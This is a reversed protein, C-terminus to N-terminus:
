DEIQLDSEAKNKASRISINNRRGEFTAGALNTTGKYYTLTTAKLGTKLCKTIDRPITSDIVCVGDNNIRIVTEWEDSLLRSSMYQVKAGNDIAEKIIRDREEQAARRAASREEPTMYAIPPIRNAM